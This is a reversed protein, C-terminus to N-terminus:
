HNGLDLRTAEFSAVEVIEAIRSERITWISCTHVIGRRVARDTFRFQCYAATRVGETFMSDILEAEWLTNPNFAHWGGFPGHLPM